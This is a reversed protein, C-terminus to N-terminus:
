LKMKLSMCQPVIIHVHLASLTLLFYSTLGREEPSSKRVESSALLWVDSIILSYCLSAVTLHM